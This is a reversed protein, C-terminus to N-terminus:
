ILTKLIKSDSCKEPTYLPPISPTYLTYLPPLPFLQTKLNQYNHNLQTTKM